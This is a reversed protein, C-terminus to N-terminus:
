YETIQVQKKLNQVDKLDFTSSDSHKVKSAACATALSLTEVLSYQNSLGSLFAGTFCDGAGTDNVAEVRPPLGRYVKNEHVCYSGNKGLSTVIYPISHNLRKLFPVLDENDENLEKVEFENPKIFDVGIQVATKLANGSLDCAVFCGKNKLWNILEKLDDLCFGVPLSGAILIIDGHEVSTKLQKMFQNINKKSVTFGQETMMTTSSQKIDVAVYSERTSHGDILTFSSCIGKSDLIRIFKEANLSGMFGLATNEVGLKTMTYSAHTGKGGIDYSVNTIRNTKKPEIKEDFYLLRDIAPNLTITYIM